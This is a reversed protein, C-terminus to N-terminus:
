AWFPLNICFIWDSYENFRFQLDMVIDVSRHFLIMGVGIMLAWKRSCLVMIAVLELVVGGSLFIRALNPNNLMWEGYVQHTGIVSADLNSYYEQKETKIVELAMYPSNWFWGGSTRVIKTLGAIVYCGAIAAQSYFLFYSWQSLGDAFAFPQKRKWGVIRRGAFWLVVITQFLLITTVMQCGHHIAGQSNYYTRVVISAITLLPLVVPLLFGSTYIVLCIAVVFRIIQMATWSGEIGLWALSYSHGSWLWTLNFGDWLEHWRAIGNPYKLSEYHFNEPFTQWVVCAFIMRMVLVEWRTVPGPRFTGGFSKNVWSISWLRRAFSLIANM